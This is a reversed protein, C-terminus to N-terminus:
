AAGEPETRPASGSPSIETGFIRDEAHTHVDLLTLVNLLGSLCVMVLGADVYPIDNEVLAHGHVGEMLLAPM